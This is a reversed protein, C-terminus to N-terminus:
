CHQLYESKVLTGKTLTNPNQSYYKEIFKIDSVSDFSVNELSHRDIKEGNFDVGFFRNFCDGNCLLLDFLIHCPKNIQKRINESLTVKNLLPNVYTTPYVIYDYGHFNSVERIVIGNM